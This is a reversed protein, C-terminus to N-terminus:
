RETQKLDRGSIERLHLDDLARNRRKVSRGRQAPDDIQNGFPGAMLELGLHQRINCGAVPVVEGGISRTRNAIIRTQRQCDARMM